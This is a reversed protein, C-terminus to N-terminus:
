HKSTQEHAQLSGAETQRKVDKVVEEMKVVIREFERSNTKAKCITVSVAQFAIRDPMEKQLDKRMKLIVCHWRRLSNQKYYGRRAM